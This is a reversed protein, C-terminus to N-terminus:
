KSHTAQQRSRERALLDSLDDVLSQFQQDTVQGLLASSPELSKLAARYVQDITSIKKSLVEKSQGTRMTLDIGCSRCAPSPMALAGGFFLPDSEGCAQCGLHLLAGHASCRILGAFCWDWRIHIISDQAICLRCFAYGASLDFWRPSPRSSSPFRLLEARDSRQLRTNLDLAILTYFHLRSFKAFGLLFDRDIARDLSRPLPIGPYISTFGVIL